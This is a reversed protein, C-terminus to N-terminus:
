VLSNKKENARLRRLQVATIRRCFRIGLPASQQRTYLVTNATAGATQHHDPGLEFKRKQFFMM